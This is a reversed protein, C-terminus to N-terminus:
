RIGGNQLANNVAEIIGNSSFTAGSVVQVDVSQNKIIDDILSEAKSFYEQDDGSDEVKIDSIEGSSVTVKVKIDSKYGKGTGTYTGDVYKGKSSNTDGSEKSSQGEDSGSSVSNSDSTKEINTTNNISRKETKSVIAESKHRSVKLKEIKTGLSIGVVLVACILATIKIKKAKM